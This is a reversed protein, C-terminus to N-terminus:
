EMEYTEKTVRKHTKLNVAKFRIKYEDEKLETIDVNWNKFDENYPLTIKRNNYLYQLENLHATVEGANNRITNAFVNNLILSSIMFIVMILVTAVLTELLTSAKIKKLIVM